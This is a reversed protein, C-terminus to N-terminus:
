NRAEPNTLIQSHECKMAVLWSQPVAFNGELLWPDQCHLFEVFLCQKRFQAGLLLLEHKSAQSELGTFVFFPPFFLCPWPDKHNSFIVSARSLTPRQWWETINNVVTCHSAIWLPLCLLKLPKCDRNPWCTRACYLSLKLTILPMWMLPFFLWHVTVDLASYGM